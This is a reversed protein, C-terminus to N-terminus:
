HRRLTSALVWLLLKQLDIGAVDQENTTTGERTEIFDNAITRFFAADAEASLDFALIFRAVETFRERVQLWLIQHLVAQNGFKHASQGNDGGEFLEIGLRQNPDERLRAVRQGLM